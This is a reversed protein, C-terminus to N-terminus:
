KKKKKEYYEDIQKKNFHLVKKITAIPLKENLPFQVSGKGKKYTTFAEAFQEHAVSMAYFGIHKEYGAFYILPKKRYKYSPMKYGFGEEIDPITQLITTRIEQLLDQTSKPFSKIYEEVAQM